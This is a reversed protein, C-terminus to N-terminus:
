GHNNNDAILCPRFFSGQSWDTLPIQWVAASLRGQPHPGDSSTVTNPLSARTLVFRGWGYCHHQLTAIQRGVQIIADSSYKATGFLRRALNSREIM